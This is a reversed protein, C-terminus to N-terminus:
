TIRCAPPPPDAACPRPTPVPHSCRAPAPGPSVPPPPLAPRARATDVLAGSGPTLSGPDAPRATRGALDAREQDHQGQDAPNGDSVRGREARRQQGPYEGPARHDPREADQPRRRAAEVAASSQD